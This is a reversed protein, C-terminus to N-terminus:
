ERCLELNEEYEWWLMGAHEFSWAKREGVFPSWYPKVITLKEDRMIELLVSGSERKIKVKDGVKM